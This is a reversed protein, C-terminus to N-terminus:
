WNCRVFAVCQTDASSRTYATDATLATGFFNDFGANTGMSNSVGSGATAGMVIENSISTDSDVRAGPHVGCTQVVMLGDALVSDNSVDVFSGVADHSAGMSVGLQLGECIEGTDALRVYVFDSALLTAGELVGDAGPGQGSPATTTLCVWDNPYVREEAFAPVFRQRVSGSGPRFIGSSIM